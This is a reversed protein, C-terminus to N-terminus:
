FVTYCEYIARFPNKPPLVITGNLKGSIGAKRWGKLIIEQGIPGLAIKLLTYIFLLKICM